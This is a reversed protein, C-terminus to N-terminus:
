PVDGPQQLCGEGGHSPGEATQTEPLHPVQIGLRRHLAILPFPWAVRVMDSDFGQGPDPLRAVVDGTNALQSAGAPDAAVLNMGGDVIGGGQRLDLHPPHSLGVSNLQRLRSIAQSLPWSM